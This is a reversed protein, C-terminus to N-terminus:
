PVPFLQPLFEVAPGDRCWGNVQDRRLLSRQVPLADHREGQLRGPGPGGGPRKGSQSQVGVAQVPRNSPRAWRPQADLNLPQPQRSGPNFRGDGGIRSNRHRQRPLASSRDVGRITRIANGKREGVGVVPRHDFVILKEHIGTPLWGREPAPACGHGIMQQGQGGPRGRQAVGQLSGDIGHRVGADPRDHDSLRRNCEASRLQYALVHVALKIAVSRRHRGKRFREGQRCPQIQEADPQVSLHRRRSPREANGEAPLGSRGGQGREPGPHLQDLIPGPEAFRSGCRHQSTVRGVTPLLAFHYGLM